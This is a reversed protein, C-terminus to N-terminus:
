DISDIRHRCTPCTGHEALWKDVCKCHYQHLCPLTRVVEGSKIKDCCVACQKTAGVRTENWVTTPLFLLNKDLQGQLLTHVNHFTIRLRAANLIEHINVIDFTQLPNNSLDLHHLGMPMEVHELYRIRNMDLKLVEVSQPIADVLRGTLRQIKNMGLDLGILRQLREINHGLGISKFQNRRLSLKHLHRPLRMNQLSIIRNHHLNLVRLHRLYSLDIYEDESIAIKNHSLSLWLLGTPFHVNHLTRIKNRSLTLEQISEPFILNQVTELEMNSLDCQRTRPPCYANLIEQEDSIPIDLTVWRPTPPPEFQNRRDLCHLMYFLSFISTVWLAAMRSDPM